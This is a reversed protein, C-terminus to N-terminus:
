DPHVRLTLLGCKGERVNVAGTIALFPPDLVTGADVIHIRGPKEVVFLRVSGDGAGTVYLPQTFGSAVTM